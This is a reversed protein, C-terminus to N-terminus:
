EYIIYNNKKNLLDSKLRNVDTLTNLISGTNLMSILIKQYTLEGGHFGDITEKDSSKCYSVSSFDYVEFNYNQFFPKVENYIKKLYGYKNESENMKNFVTDSYPPLFAIVKIQNDKCFRLIEDLELLAKENVYQGHQFRGSAKEIRELTNTYHYDVATTDNNLLKKIQSGYFISGDNRFGTNNLIANLGIKHVSTDTKLNSFDYKGTFWDEYILRYTPLLKPFFKFSNKWSDISPKSNLADYSENFMWQDLGIILYKPYKTNPISKLFPRFDNLSEVTYGANYFSVDFMNRRFSLVRSSGLAWITKRENSVLYAWKLYHYNTETHAYGILYDSKGALVNDIKNFNEKSQWLIYTPISFFILFPSIFLGLQWLFRKM